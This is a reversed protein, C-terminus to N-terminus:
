SHDHCSDESCIGAVQNVSEDDELIEHYVLAVNLVGSQSLLEDIIRVIHTETEAELVVVLKGQPSEAHIELSPITRLADRFGHLFQPRVHVVLSAIHVCNTMLVSSQKLSETDLLLSDTAILGADSM